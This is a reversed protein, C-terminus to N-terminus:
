QKKFINKQKFIVMQSFFNPGGINFKSQEYRIFNTHEDFQVRVLTHEDFQVRVVESFTHDVKANEYSM